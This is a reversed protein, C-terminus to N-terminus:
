KVPSSQSTLVLGESRAALEQSFGALEADTGHAELEFAPRSERVVIAIKRAARINFAAIVMATAIDVLVRATETSPTVSAVIDWFIDSM